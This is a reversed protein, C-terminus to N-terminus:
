TEKENSIVMRRAIDLRLNYRATELEIFRNRTTREFERLQATLYSDLMDLEEATADSYNTIPTTRM